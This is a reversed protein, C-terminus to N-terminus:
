AFDKRVLKKVALCPALPDNDRYIGTERDFLMISKGTQGTVRFRIKQFYIHVMEREAEDEANLDRWPCLINDAMAYFHQSGLIDDPYPIGQKGSDQRDLKRPHAILWVSVNHKNRFDTIMPLTREVFETGSEGGKKDKAIMNWPDIVLCDLRRRKIQKEAAHLIESLSRNVPKLFTFHNEMWDQAALAGDETMRVKSSQWFGQGQYISAIDTMHMEPSDKEPSFLCFKWGFKAAVTAMLWDVFASKGHNPLGHFITFEGRRLTWYPDLSKFGIPIGRVMGRRFLDLYKESTQPDSPTIYGKKITDRNTWGHSTDGDESCAGCFFSVEDPSEDLWQCKLAREECLPCVQKLKTRTLGLSELPIM